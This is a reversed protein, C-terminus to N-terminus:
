KKESMIDISSEVQRVRQLLALGLYLIPLQFSAKGAFSQETNLLGWSLLVWTSIAQLGRILRMSHFVNLAALQTLGLALFIVGIIDKHIGFPNFAPNSAFFNIGLAISIVGFVSQARWLGPNTKRLLM